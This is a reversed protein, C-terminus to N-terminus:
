AVAEKATGATLPDFKVENLQTSAVRGPYWTITPTQSAQLQLATEREILQEHCKNCIFGHVRYSMSIGDSGDLVVQVERADLEGSCRHKRETTM